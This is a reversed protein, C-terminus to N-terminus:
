LAKKRNFWGTRWAMLLAAAILAPAHTFLMAVLWNLHGREIQKEMLGMGNQYILFILVASVMSREALGFQRGGTSVTLARALRPM